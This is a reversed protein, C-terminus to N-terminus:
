VVVRVFQSPSGDCITRLSKFGRKELKENAHHMWDQGARKLGYIAKRVRHVPIGGNRLIALGSESEMEVPVRAYVPPGRLLAQLYAAKFDESEMSNGLLGQCIEFVRTQWLSPPVCWLHDDEGIGTMVAGRADRQQDGMACLRCKLEM